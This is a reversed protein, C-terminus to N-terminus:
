LGDRREAAWEDSLRPLEACGEAGHMMYGMFDWHGGLIAGEAPHVRPFVSFYKFVAGQHEHEQSQLHQQLELGM